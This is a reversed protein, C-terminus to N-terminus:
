GGIKTGKSNMSIAPLIPTPHSSRPPPAFEAVARQRATRADGDEEAVMSCALPPAGAILPTGTRM